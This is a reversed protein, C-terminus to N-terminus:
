RAVKRPNADPAEYVPLGSKRAAARALNQQKSTTNSYRNSNIVIAKLGGVTAFRAVPFHRGYSYLVGGSTYFSGNNNCIDASPDSIWTEAVFKTHMRKM